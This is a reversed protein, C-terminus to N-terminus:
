KGYVVVLATFAILAALALAVIAVCGRLDVILPRERPAPRVDGLGAPDARAPKEIAGAYRPIAYIAAAMVFFATNLINALEPDIPMPGEAILSAFSMVSMLLAFLGFVAPIVLAIKFRHIRRFWMFMLIALELMVGPLM